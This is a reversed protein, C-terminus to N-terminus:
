TIEIVNLPRTVLKVGSNVVQHLLQKIMCVSVLLIFDKKARFLVGLYSERRHKSLFCAAM